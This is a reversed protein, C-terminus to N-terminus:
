RSRTTLCLADNKLAVLRALVRAVSQRGAENRHRLHAGRSPAWRWGESKLVALVAPSPRDDFALGIRNQEPLDLVTMGLDDHRVDGIEPRAREAELEAIRQEVRRISAAHNAANHLKAWPCLRATEVYREVDEAPVGADACAARAADTTSLGAKKHRADARNLALGVRHAERMEVLEARLKEVADPDDSSIGATGVAAARRALEKAERSAEASARMARDARDIDGRHKRESHHGVLIPQGAPIRDLVDHARDQARRADDARRNARASLSERRADVRDQFEERRKTDDNDM